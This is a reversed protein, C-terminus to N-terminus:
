KKQNNIKKIEKMQEKTLKPKRDYFYFGNQEQEVDYLQTYCFGSVKEHKFITETLARYREVFSNTDNAGKGYGWGQNNSNDITIGGYESLNTPLGKTYRLNDFPSYLADTDLIDNNTLNNLVTELEDANKYCHFDYLDTAHGHHGGSVDVCPRTPDFKKTFEYVSDIFRADRLKNYDDFSGWVENLPCWTIISPHNFDRKLVDQWQDIFKGYYNLSSYDGGWSPFEGWVIYGKIDCLYLFKPEFVKQHLRAGNFGLNLALNIDKEMEKTNKATYIGDIYYGQDLVLKQYTVKDNLLFNYGEYKVERLGFYSYVIDDEYKIVVDYLNGKGISWLHKQSLPITVKTRYSIEGNTSGMLENNYYVEIEYKGKHEVLLDVDVSCKEINPYFYFEKIRNQSVEEIYVSQWIGTTRTYFCGFSEKKYSQKGYFFSQGDNDLVTLTIENEGIVLFDTIDFEFPTFGGEHSGVYKNNIHVITKYDVALFHLLLRNEIKDITFKKKYFCEKIFDTHGIKSLKSEVCFPVNIKKWNKNNFSFKWNDNFLTTKERIFLPNPYNLKNM